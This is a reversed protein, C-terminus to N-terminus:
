RELMVGMFVFLPVAVLVENVMVGFYRSALAGFLNFQFVDLLMGIGAFMVATGALSFAVPFGLLLVFCAGLFM